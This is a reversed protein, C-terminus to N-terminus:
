DHLWDSKLVLERWQRSFALKLNYKTRNLYYFFYAFHKRVAFIRNIKYFRRAIRIVYMFTKLFFFFSLELLKLRSYRYKRYDTYSDCNGQNGVRKNFYAQTTRSTPIMHRTVSAGVYAFKGNLDKIKINLGTEGDGIWKGATNEPNFGGSEFFIDRKMMQHCSFVGIDDSSVITEDGLDLLSLWGCCLHELVWQPPKSEWQPLIKGTASAVGSNDIFVQVLNKLLNEDAIMDDDTYYLYEGRSIKAASNRAYHVGQRPEFITKVSNHNLYGNIIEQTNDSSNNNAIIIEYKDEPYTQHIFSDITVSLMKERNYTPIIVSIFPFSM